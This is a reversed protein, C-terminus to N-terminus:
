ELEDEDECKKLAKIVYESCDRIAEAEFDIRHMTKVKDYHEVKDRLYEKCFDLLAGPDTLTLGTETVVRRVLPLATYYLDVGPIATVTNYNQNKDLFQSMRTYSVACKEKLSKDKIGDLLGYTWWFRVSADADEPDIKATAYYISFRNM